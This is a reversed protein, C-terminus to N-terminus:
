GPILLADCSIEKRENKRENRKKQGGEISEKKSKFM